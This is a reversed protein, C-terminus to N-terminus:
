SSGQWPPSAVGQPLHSSQGVVAKSLSHSLSVQPGLHGQHSQWLNLEANVNCYISGAAM